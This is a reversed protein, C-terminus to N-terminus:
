VVLEELLKWMRRERTIRAQPSFLKQLTKVSVLEETNAALITEIKDADLVGYLEPRMKLQVLFGLRERGILLAEVAKFFAADQQISVQNRLVIHRACAFDRFQASEILKMWDNGNLIVVQRLEPHMGCVAEVVEADPEIILVAHRGLVECLMKAQYGSGLGLLIISSAGGSQRIENQAKVLWQQAERVPDISSAMFRGDRILVADGRRSNAIEIM